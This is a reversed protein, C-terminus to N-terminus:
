VVVKLSLSKSQFEDDRDERLSSLFDNSSKREEYRTVGDRKVRRCLLKPGRTFVIWNTRVKVRLM